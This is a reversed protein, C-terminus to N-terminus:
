AAGTAKREPERPALYTGVQLQSLPDFLLAVSATTIHDACRAGACESAPTARMACEEESHVSGLVSM